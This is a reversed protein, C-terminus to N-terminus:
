VTVELWHLTARSFVGLNCGLSYLFNISSILDGLYETVEGLYETVGLGTRSESEM